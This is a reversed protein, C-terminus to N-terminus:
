WMAAFWLDKLLNPLSPDFIILVLCGGVGWTFYVIFCFGYCLLMFFFVFFFSFNFLIIYVNALVLSPPFSIGKTTPKQSIYTM